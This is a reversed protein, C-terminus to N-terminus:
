FSSFLAFHCAMSSLTGGTRGKTLIVYYYKDTTQFFNGHWKKTLIVYYKDSCIQCVFFHLFFIPWHVFRMLMEEKPNCVQDSCMVGNAM